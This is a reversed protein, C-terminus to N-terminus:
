RVEPWISQSIGARQANWRQAARAKVERDHLQLTVDEILALAEPCDVSVAKQCATNACQYILDGGLAECIHVPSHCIGCCFLESYTIHQM